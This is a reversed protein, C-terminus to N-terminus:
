RKKKGKKEKAAPPDPVSLTAEKIEDGQDRLKEQSSIFFTLDRNQEQLDLNSDKLQKVENTLLEVRKILNGNMAKEDRWENEVKRSMTESKEARREARAKDRELTPIINTSLKDHSAQLSTLQQTALLATEAAREAATSAQSAKDAAREVKEEFYLRQSDLQSTLLQSYEMAMNDLKERPMYEVSTDSTTENPASPLEVFKGDAKNQLIRHVYGDGIYDWVRQTSMDMAYSHSTQQHHSFAHAADYRGCGINGCILCMWLNAESGCVTCENPLIDDDSGCANRKGIGVADGQTYRCVPCGSGRWKQLCACHFVHQCLITLLGTTEDMRELCVPCTPLEILSPTPPALPKTTLTTSPTNSSTGAGVKTAAPTFPDNTMDPFNSPDGTSGQSKFEISKIFVVHCYEPEMSNFVKGNWDKSWERAKKAKRFKMLVMYRNTRGTRIMRFHSVEDRTKEGVFGLFDSPTLYSPVALICLTTCDVEDFVKDKTSLAKRQSREGADLYGQSYDDDHLGHTEEADRYLHVIGWGVETNKLDSPVYRGKTALGGPGPGAGLGNSINGVTNSSINAESQKSQVEMDISEISVRDFRWDQLTPELLASPTIGSRKPILHEDLLGSSDSFSVATNSRHVPLSRQDIHRASVGTRTSQATDLNHSTKKGPKQIGWDKHDISQLPLKFIDTDSPPLYVNDHHLDRDQTSLPPYQYLELTLHFFYSPM